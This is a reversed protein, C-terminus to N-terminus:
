KKIGWMKMTKKLGIESVELEGWIRKFEEFWDPYVLEQWVNTM